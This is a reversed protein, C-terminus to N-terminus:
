DQSILEKIKNLYEDKLINLKEETTAEFRLTLNPGTNSARVLVWSDDYTVRVGDIDLFKYGKDIVYQKVKEVIIFKKQEDVPVKIEPTSYYKNINELLESFSKDTKSLIEIFRLGAYIASCVEPGRDNFYIHGSLEGGLPINNAKTNSETFSTGTRSMFTSGGLKEIEDILTKSCKVDCLFTKNKVKNIIDRIAIILYIDAKIFNGQEDIIGIRDGDGDYAIGIDAKNEIVAKKLMEMNEEVAPDPHHNPFTGDSLDNIYVPIINPFMENVEHIITSTTGNGPDFVAKIKKSGMNINDKLYNLYEDKIDRKVYIGKGKIFKNNFTYNRFDDIMTGRANALEDFSFKFGNDDKPNHSATVMIGCTKNIYRTYYHMPTTILGYDIVNIGTSLLGKILNEKIPPSTLRNDMGIVCKNLKVKEKLYSGYSQGIIYADDIFLDKNVTGRIDYAKFIEKKM